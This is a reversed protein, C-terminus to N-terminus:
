KGAAQSDILALLRDAENVEFLASQKMETDLEGSNVAVAKTWRWYEVAPRFQGLDVAQAPKYGDVGYTGIIGLMHRGKPLAALEEDSLDTGVDMYGGEGLDLYAVPEQGGGVTLSNKGTAGVPQSAALATRAYDRMQKSTFYYGCPEAFWKEGRIMCRVLDVEEPLPPLELVDPNDPMPGWEGSQVRQDFAAREAEAKGRLAAAMKAMPSDDRQGGPSPQASLDHWVKMPAAAHCHACRVVNAGSADIYECPWQDFDSHGCFPCPPLGDGLRVMGGPQVDELTKDNSM